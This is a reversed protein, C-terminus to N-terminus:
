AVGGDMVRRLIDGASLVQGTRVPDGADGSQAILAGMALRIKPPLFTGKEAMEPSVKETASPAGHM